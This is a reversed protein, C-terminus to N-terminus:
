AASFAVLYEEAYVVDRLELTQLPVIRNHRALADSPVHRLASFLFNYLWCTGLMKWVSQLKWVKM